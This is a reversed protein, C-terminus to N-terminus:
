RTTMLGCMRRVNERTKKDHKVDAMAVLRPQRAQYQLGILQQNNKNKEKSEESRKNNQQDFRSTMRDFSKDIEEACVRYIEAM